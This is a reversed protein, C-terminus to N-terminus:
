EVYEKGKWTNKYVTFDGGLLSEVILSSHVCERKRIEIAPNGSVVSMAEVDKVVVSGAGVVAGRGIKRCSPLILANTAIWVYDAITLGYYKHEWEPSDINHSATIIKAGDGIIVNNGIILHSHTDIKDTHISVHDGIKCNSNMKKALSMPMIVGGGIQAGNRRAIKRAKEYYLDQKWRIILGLVYHFWNRKKVRKEYNTEKTNDTMSQKFTSLISKLRRQEM